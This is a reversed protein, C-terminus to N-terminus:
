LMTQDYERKVYSKNQLVRAVIKRDVSFMRAITAIPITPQGENIKRIDAAEDFTLNMNGKGHLYRYRHLINKRQTCFELNEKRNNQYDGDKHNVVPLNNPNENFAYAVCRHVSKHKTKGNVCAIFYLHGNRDAHLTLVKERATARKFSKIRGINSVAYFGEYGEIPKWEETRLEEDSFNPNFRYISNKKM